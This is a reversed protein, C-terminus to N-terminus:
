GKPTNIAALAPVLQEKKKPSPSTDPLWFVKSLGMLSKFNM